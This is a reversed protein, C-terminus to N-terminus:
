ANYILTLSIPIFQRNLLTVHILGLTTIGVRLFRNLGIVESYRNLEYSSITDRLGLNTSLSLLDNGKRILSLSGTFPLFIHGKFPSNEHHFSTLVTDSENLDCTRLRLGHPGWPNLSFKLSDVCFM